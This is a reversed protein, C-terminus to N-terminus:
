NCLALALLLSGEIESLESGRSTDIIIKRVGMYIAGYARGGSLIISKTIMYNFDAAQTKSIM